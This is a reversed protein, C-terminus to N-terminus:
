DVIDWAGTVTDFLADSAAGVPKSSPRQGTIRRNLEQLIDRMSANSLSPQPEMEVDIVEIPRGETSSAAGAAAQTLSIDLTELQRKIEETSVDSKEMQKELGDWNGGTTFVSTLNLRNAEGSTAEDVTDPEATADPEPEEQQEAEIIQEATRGSARSISRAHDTDGM